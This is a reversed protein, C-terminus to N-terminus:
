LVSRAFSVRQFDDKNMRYKEILMAAKEVMYRGWGGNRRIVMLFLPTKVSQSHTSRRYQNRGKNLVTNIRFNEVVGTKQLDTLSLHSKPNSPSLVLLRWCSRRNWRRAVDSLYVLIGLGEKVSAFGVQEMASGSLDHLM